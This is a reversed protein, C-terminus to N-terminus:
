SGEELCLAIAESFWIVALVQGREDAIEMRGRADLRGHRVEEALVSRMGGVAIERATPLDVLDQGEDDLAAGSSNYLNLHFRPM